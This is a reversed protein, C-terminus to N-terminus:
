FEFEANVKLTGDPTAKTAGFLYGVNYKFSTGNSPKFSGFIVPGGLVQQQDYPLPKGFEGPEGFIEFGADLSQFMRFRSQWAYTMEVTDEAHSGVQREVFLNVTHVSRSLEMQLVPGAKIDPKDSSHQPWAYEAFLAANLWYKGEEVLQFTNEWAVEDLQMKEGNPKSWEFELEPQWWDTVGYGFAFNYVASNDLAKDSDRTVTYAAEFEKEGKVVDPMHVTFDARALSPLGLTAVLLLALLAASRAVVTIRCPSISHM